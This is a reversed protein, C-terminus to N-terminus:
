DHLDTDDAEAELRTILALVGFVPGDFYEIERTQVRRSQQLAHAEFAFAPSIAPTVATNAPADIVSPAPARFELDLDLHLFRTKRFSAAGDIRYYRTLAPAPTAAAVGTQPAPGAATEALSAPFPEEEFLVAADHVRVLPFPQQNSQEWSFYLEPRFGSSSRLRQWALQMTESPTEIWVVAHPDAAPGDAASGAPADIPKATPALLDLAASYDTLETGPMLDSAPDLHSLVLLEIRYRREQGQVEQSSLLLISFLILFIRYIM